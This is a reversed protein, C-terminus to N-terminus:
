VVHKLTHSRVESQQWDVYAKLLLRYGRKKKADDRLVSKPPSSHVAQEGDM